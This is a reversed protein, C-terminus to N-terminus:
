RVILLLGLEDGFASRSVQKWGGSGCNKIADAIGYRSYNVATDGSIQNLPWLGILGSEWGTARMNMGALVDAQTCVTSWLRVESLCGVISWDPKDAYGGIMFFQEQTPTIRNESTRTFESVKVGNVYSVITDGDCCAAVHAWKGVQFVNEPSFVATGSGNFNRFFTRLRGKSAVNLVFDNKRKGEGVYQSLIEHENSIDYPRVWAEVSFQESDIRVRTDLCARSWVQYPTTEANRASMPNVANLWHAAGEMTGEGAALRSYNRVVNGEGDNLPLYVILGDEKGTLRRRMGEAIQAARRETEWVRVESVNADVGDGGCVVLDGPPTFNAETERVFTSDLAGDVYLRMTTGDSTVALHTWRWLSLKRKATMWNTGQVFNRCFVRFSLKDVFFKLDGTTSGKFQRIIEMTERSSDNPKVWAELTYAAKRIRLDNEFAVGGDTAERYPYVVVDSAEPMGMPALPSRMSVWTAGDLLASSVGSVKDVIEEGSGEDLPWYALLGDEDGKLRNWLNGSIEAESRVTSWVRCESLKGSFPVTSTNGGVVFSPTSTPVVPKASIGAFTKALKGNVYFMAKAGDCSVAIHTWRDTPAKEDLTGWKGDIFGRTFIAFRGSTIGLRWDGTTGSGVFQDLIITESATDDPKVWVEVTYVASTLKFHSIVAETESLVKESGEARAYAGFFAAVIFLAAIKRM